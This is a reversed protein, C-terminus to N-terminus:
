REPSGPILFTKNGHRRLGAEGAVEAIQPEGDDAMVSAM